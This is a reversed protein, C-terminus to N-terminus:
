LLNNFSKLKKIFIKILHGKFKLCYLFIVLFIIIINM